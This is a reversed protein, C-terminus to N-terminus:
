EKFGMRTLIVGFKTPSNSGVYLKDVHLALTAPHDPSLWGSPVPKEFHKGGPSTYRIKDLLKGNVLYDITVPGTSKFADEWVTFDADFKLNDTSFLQLRITPDQATWRWEPNTRPYIDKVICLAVGPDSMEAMMADPGPNYGEM